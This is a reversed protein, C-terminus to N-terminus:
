FLIDTPRNNMEEHTHTRWRVRGTQILGENVISGRDKSEKGDNRGQVINVELPLLYTNKELEVSFCGASQQFLDKDRM